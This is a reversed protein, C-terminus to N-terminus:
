LRELIRMRASRARPNKFVEEGTARMVHKALVHFAGKKTQEKFMNKAIRDELSHFSIVILKGRPALLSFSDSLARTINELEHNVAIRLAQFTKTACHSKKRRYWYPVARKVVEALQFSTKIPRSKREQAIRKAIRKAFREEGYEKLIKEIKREQWSGVIEEAPISNEQPNYRMDLPEDRLFSFGRGSREIHHASFGLDFLIGNVREIKKQFLIKRIHIYNGCAVEINEIGLEKNRIELGRILECDRDIGIVKGKKGLREAITRAHGGGNVTADLYIQGPQPDFIELVEKLLVPTHSDDMAM